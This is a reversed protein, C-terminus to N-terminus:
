EQDGGMVNQGKYEGSELIRNTEKAIASLQTFTPLRGPLNWVALALAIVCDDHYGEPAGYRIRGSPMIEFGFIRLEEILEPINPFKIQGQEMMIALNNILDRKIAETFKIGNINLNADLLDQTIVEGIGTQDVNALANGYRRLVAEIRARQTRYDLQNYREFYGIRQRQINIGIKVTWDVLQALDIGFQYTFRPDPLDPEYVKNELCREIGRFVVGGETFWECLFEQRYAMETMTKKAEALQSEPIIKTQEATQMLALWNELTKAREHLQQFHMGIPKPTGIFWCWADPNAFMIPSIIEEWIVKKMLAFEDLVVGLPNPGRLSDPEDAGKVGIVSGNKLYIVLETDNKKDVIEMPLYKQLMEPDRWIIEKAQRYTPAVYWFVKKPNKFAEYILKNLALATKGAKRHM